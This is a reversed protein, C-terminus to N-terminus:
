RVSRELFEASRKRYAEKRQGASTWDIRHGERSELDPIREVFRGGLGLEGLLDTVRESRREFRFTYFDRELAVSFATGHFSTTLVLDACAFYGVFEQPTIASIFKQTFCLFKKVSKVYVIQVVEKGWRRAFCEAERDVDKSEAIKYVLVYDTQKPLRAFALWQRKSLLFVPDCVTAVAKESLHRRLKHSLSRERCSIAQFDQLLGVTEEGFVLEGGDSAAYAIKRGSFGRGLYARDGGTLAPNWIQDSGYVVCDYADLGNRGPELFDAVFSTFVGKVKVRRPFYLFQLLFSVLRRMGRHNFRSLPRFYRYSQEILPCRYDVIDVAAAPNAEQLHRRLAYAQLVAGYNEANHFTLIGIRM